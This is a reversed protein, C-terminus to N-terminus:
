KQEEAKPAPIKFILEGDKGMGMEERAIREIVTPDTKLGKVQGALAENEKHLRELDIRLAAAEAHMRRLALFGHAGFLNHLGIGLLALALLTTAHRRL